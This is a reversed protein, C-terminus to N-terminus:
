LPGHYRDFLLERKGLRVRDGPELPTGPEHAVATWPGAPGTRSIFTGNASPGDSVEVKWGSLRVRAHVRSTSHGADLLALPQARGAVVDPAQDPDRGIVLDGTVPCVRGDDTILIGLPPRARTVQPQSRDISAGCASCSDSEPDNFQGCSCVLGKVRVVEGAAPPSPPVGVPLPPRPARGPEPNSLSVRRIPVSSRVVTHGEAERGAAKSPASGPASAAGGSASLAPASLVSASSASVPTASVPTAAESVPTSVPTTPRNFLRAAAQTPEAASTATVARRVTLGRGPVTGALLDLVGSAPHPAAEGADGAITLSDFGPPVTREVWALSETGSFTLGEGGDTTVTVDGHAMVRVSEGSAVAVAFSPVQGPEADTIM